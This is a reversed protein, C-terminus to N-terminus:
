QHTNVNGISILLHSYFTFLYSFLLYILFFDSDVSSMVHWWEPM